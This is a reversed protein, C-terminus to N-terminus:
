YSTWISLTPDSFLLSGAIDDQLSSPPDGGPSEARQRKTIFNWFAIRVRKTQGGVTSLSVQYPHKRDSHHLCLAGAGPVTPCGPPCSGQRSGHWPTERRAQGGSHSSTGWLTLFGPDTPKTSNQDWRREVVQKGELPTKCVKSISSIFEYPVQNSLNQRREGGSRILYSPTLISPGLRWPSSQKSGVEGDLAPRGCSIRGLFM